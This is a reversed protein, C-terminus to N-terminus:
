WSHGLALNDETFLFHSKVRTKLPKVSNGKKLSKFSDKETAKELQLSYVSESTNEASCFNFTPNNHLGHLVENSVAVVENRFFANQM